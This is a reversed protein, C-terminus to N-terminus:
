GAVENHAPIPMPRRVGEPTYTRALYDQSDQRYVAYSYRESAALLVGLGMAIAAGALGIAIAPAICSMIAPGM